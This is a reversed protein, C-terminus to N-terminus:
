MNWFKLIFMYKKCVSFQHIKKSISSNNRWGRLEGVGACVYVGGELSSLLFCICKLLWSSQRKGCCGMLLHSHLPLGLLNPDGSSTTSWWLPTSKQLQILYESFFFFSELTGCGGYSEIIRFFQVIRRRSVNSCTLSYPKYGSYAVEPNMLFEM